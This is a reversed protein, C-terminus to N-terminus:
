CFIETTHLVQASISCFINYGRFKIGKVSKLNVFIDMVKWYSVIFQVCFFVFLCIVFLKDLMCMNKKILM